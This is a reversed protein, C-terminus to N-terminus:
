KVDAPRKELTVQVELPKGDRIVGLSITEGDIKNNAIYTSMERLNDIPQKDASIIIDGGLEV